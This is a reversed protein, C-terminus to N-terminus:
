GDRALVRAEDVSDVEFWCPLCVTLYCEDGILVGDQSLKHRYARSLWTFAAPEFNCNQCLGFLQKVSSFQSQIEAISPWASRDWRSGLVAMVVRVRPALRVYELVKIWNSMFHAEEIVLITQVSTIPAAARFYPELESVDRLPIASERTGSRSSILSSSPSDTRGREGALIRTDTVPRFAIVHHRPSARYTSIIRTLERSKGSRMPGILANLGDLLQIDM